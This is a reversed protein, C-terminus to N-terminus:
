VRGAGPYRVPAGHPVAASGRMRRVSMPWLRSGCSHAPLWATSIEGPPRCVGAPPAHSPERLSCRLPPVPDGAEPDGRRRRDDRWARPGRPTGRGRARSRAAHRRPLVAAADVRHAPAARQRVTSPASGSVNVTGPPSGHGSRAAHSTAGTTVTTSPPPGHSRSRARARRGRGRRCRARGQEDAGAGDESASPAIVPQTPTTASTVASRAADLLRELLLGVAVPQQELQAGVADDHVLVPEDAPRVLGRGVEDADVVEVVVEALGEGLEDVGVRQELRELPDRRQLLVLGRGLRRFRREDAEVARRDDDLRQADAGLPVAPGRVLHDHAVERQALLGFGRQAVLGLQDLVDGVRDDTEVGVAADVAPVGGGLLHVAPRASATIPRLNASTTPASVRSPSSGAFCRSVTCRRESPVSSSTRM